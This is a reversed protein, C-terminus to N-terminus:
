MKQSRKRRTNNKESNFPLKGDAFGKMVFIASLVKQCDHKDVSQLDRNKNVGGEKRTLKRMFM